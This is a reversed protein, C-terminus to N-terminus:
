ELTVDREHNKNNKNIAHETNTKTSNYESLEGQLKFLLCELEEIEMQILFSNHSLEELEKKTKQSHAYKKLYENYKKPFLKDLFTKKKYETPIFNKSLKYYQKNFFNQEKKQVSIYNLVEQISNTLEQKTHEM